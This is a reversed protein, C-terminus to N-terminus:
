GRLYRLMLNDAEHLTHRLRLNHVASRAPGASIRSAGPGTLLPSVTLCLEDVLNAASLYGFTMAGGECLIQKLGRKRLAAIAAPFDIGDDGAAIVDAVQRLDRVRETPAAASCIVIPRRPAKTFLESGPDLSASGSVVAMIPVDEMGHARRWATRGQDLVLERYNEAKVTGAGALLVDCRARLVKFVRKDATGSLGGSRGEVEVAGDASTVFNVRLWSEAEAPPAYAAYLQQESLDSLESFWFGSM